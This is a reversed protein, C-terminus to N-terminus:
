RGWFLIACHSGDNDACDVFGALEVIGNVGGQDELVPSVPEVLDGAHEVVVVPWGGAIGASCENIGDISAYVVTPAGGDNRGLPPGQVVEVADAHRGPDDPM